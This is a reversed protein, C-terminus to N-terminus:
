LITHVIRLGFHAVCVFLTECLALYSYGGTGSSGGRGPIRYRPVAFARRPFARRFRFRSRVAGLCLVSSV